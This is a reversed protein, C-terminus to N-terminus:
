EKLGKEDQPPPKGAAGDSASGTGGPLLSEVLIGITIGIDTLISAIM